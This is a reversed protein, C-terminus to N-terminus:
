VWQKSIKPGLSVSLLREMSVFCKHIFLKSGDDLFIEVDANVIKKNKEVCKKSEEIFDFHHQDLIEKKRISMLHYFVKNVYLVKMEVDIIM